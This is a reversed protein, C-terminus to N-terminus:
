EPLVPDFEIADLRAASTGNFERYELWRPDDHLNQWIPSFTRRRLYRFQTAAMEFLKEFAFDKDGMWSAVVTLILTLGRQDRYDSRSLEAFLADAEGDRGLSFLSMATFAKHWLYNWEDDVDVSDLYALVEGIKGQLLLSLAYEPWGETSATLYREFERQANAYNGSFMLVEAYRRRCQHCLPDIALAYKLLRVSTELNGIDKAFYGALRIMDPRSLDKHLARSYMAAAEELKNDFALNWGDYFDPYASNPDIELIREQIERSNSQMEEWTLDSEAVLYWYAMGLLDLAPIYDPDIELARSVLEYMSKGVGEPRAQHLQYAQATLSLVEPDVHRSRPLSSLLAVRLNAVVDAAIADQIVFKDGIEHTYTNSWLHTNTRGEILQATVRVKNGSLRVSGELIHAVDLREAVDPIHLDQGRFAFASSRSIVRLERIHALLNLVEEAIGDGFYEQEPDSSMNVFPLVAISRDGYFGTLAKAAATEAVEAERLAARDPALVFKDFAFYSIGLVLIVIIARDLTRKVRESSRADEAFGRDFRIGEPTIQLVWAGIVVPVFCIALVVIVNRIADDSFAFFPLTTEVVQIILWAAVFYATAVRLVNRRKLENLLSM